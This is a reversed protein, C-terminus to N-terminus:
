RYSSDAYSLSDECSERTKWFKWVQESGGDIVSIEVSVVQDGDKVEDIRPSLGAENIVDVRADPTMPSVVCKAGGQSVAYWTRDAEIQRAKLGDPAPPVDSAKGREGLLENLLAVREKGESLKEKLPLRIPEDTFSGASTGNQAYFLRMAGFDLDSAVTYAILADRLGKPGQIFYQELNDGRVLIAAMERTKPDVAVKMSGSVDNKIRFNYVGTYIYVEGGPRQIVNSLSGYLSPPNAPDDSPQILGVPWLPEPFQKVLATFSARGAKSKVVDSFEVPLALGKKNDADDKKWVWTTVCKELCDAAAQYEPALPLAPKTEAVAEPATSNDAPAPSESCGMLLLGLVPLAFHCLRM